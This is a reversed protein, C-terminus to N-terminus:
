EGSIFLNAPLYQDYTDLLEIPVFATYEEVPVKVYNNKELEILRLEPLSFRESNRPNTIVDYEVNFLFVKRDEIAEEIVPANIDKWFNARANEFPAWAEASLSLYSGKVEEGLVYYPKAVGNGYGLVVVNSDPRILSETKIKDLEAETLNLKVLPHNVPNDASEIGLMWGELSQGPKPPNRLVDTPDIGRKEAVKVFDFAEDKYAAILKYADDGYKATLQATEDSNRAIIETLEEGIERAVTNGPMGGDMYESQLEIATEAAGVSDGTWTQIAGQVILGGEELKDLANVAWEVRGCVTPNSMCAAAVGNGIKILALQLGGGLIFATTAAATAGVLVNKIINTGLARDYHANLAITGAAIAGGAVVAAIGAVALLPLTVIGTVVLAVAALGVLVGVGISTATQHEDIWDITKEWWPKEKPVIVAREEQDRARFNNLVNQARQQKEVRAQATEMAKTRRNEIEIGADFSPLKTLKPQKDMSEEALREQRSLTSYDNKKKAQEGAEKQEAATKKKEEEIIASMKKARIQDHYSGKGEKPERVQRAALKAALAEEERKRQAEALFTSVAAAAAAGWLISSGPATIPTQSGTSGFSQTGSIGAATTVGGGVSVIGTKPADIIEDNKEEGFNAIDASPAVSVPPPTNVPPIFPPLFINFINNEVKIDGTIMSENGAVDSAKITAYYVGAPARTGDKFKGDWLFEHNFKLGSPYEEWALKDYREDEDEIVIRLVSLGSGNDQAGYYATEGLEWEAALDLAPPTTDIFYTQASTTTVNGAQDSARFKLSYRGESYTLPITYPTWTDNDLSYEFSALGSGHDSSSANVQVDSIYWGNAGATGNVSLNILPMLTDVNIQQDTQTVNGAADMARVSLSHAGDPFTLTGNYATWGEGDFDYELSALGSVSDGATATVAVNSKYWGNNGPTGTLSLDLTPTITDISITQTTESQNGADDIARLDVTHIGDYLTLPSTYPSWPEGDLSYEFAAIGSTSDDASASLTVNSVYWGNTGTSGSFSGDIQPVVSDHQFAQSGSATLGIASTVLYSVTGTGEPL